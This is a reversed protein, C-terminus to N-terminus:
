VTDKLIRTNEIISLLQGDQFYVLPIANSIPSEVGLLYALTSAGYVNGLVKGLVPQPTGYGWTGAYASNPATQRITGIIKPGPIQGSLFTISKGQWGHDSGGDAVKPSRNFEGSLEIVTDNWQGTSKLNDILELTCASVARFLLTNFYMTPISGSFHSDHTIGHNIRGIRMSTSQTLNRTIVYETVAFRQALSGINSSSTIYDRMDLHAPNSGNYKHSALSNETGLGIPKDNIFPIVQTLSRKVLDTYRAVAETWFADLDNFGEEIMQLSKRSNEVFVESAPQRKTLETNLANTAAAIAQEMADQKSRQPATLEVNFANLMKALLNGGGTILVPTKRATSQFDLDSGYQNVFDLPMSSADAALAGVSKISSPPTFHLKQSATHGSNGTDLGQLCLMHNLLEAMDRTGGESKPVPVGWIYPVSIGAKQITEYVVETYTSGIDSFRTGVMPNSMFDKSEYPTLFLDFMWRAPAGPFQLSIYKKSTTQGYLENAFPVSTLMTALLRYAFHASGLAGTQEILDRRNIKKM